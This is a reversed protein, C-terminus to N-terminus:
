KLTALYRLSESVAQWVGGPEEEIIYWKVSQGRATKLLAPWDIRGQGLPRADAERFDGSNDGVVDKRLDKLHLSRFRGRHKQMLKVPDQGPFAVHYTDLQLHVFRPDTRAMMLDFLTGGGDENPVFEYGHLHYSFFMGQAALKRGARNFVDIAALCDRRTFPANIWPVGIERVGFVRADAIVEEIRDRATEYEIHMGIARLGAKDLEARFQRATMGYYGALEVRTFGLERVRKLTGPVDRAFDDRFSWLQVALRQKIAAPQACVRDMPLLLAALLLISVKRHLNM